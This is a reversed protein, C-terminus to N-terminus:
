TADGGSRRVAGSRPAGGAPTARGSRASGAADEGTGHGARISHPLYGHLLELAQPSDWAAPGVVRGLERGERDLLISTPVGIVHLDATATGTADVYVGLSSIGLEHYFDRVAAPGGRDISLPVVTFEPGGLRAQLRDLSPMEKRCPGCWTAWLNLLVLRGRFDGLALERGSGDVFQLAPLPQPQKLAHFNLGRAASPTAAAHTSEVPALVLRQPSPNTTTEYVVAGVVVLTVVLAALARKM